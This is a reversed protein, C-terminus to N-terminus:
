ASRGCSCFVISTLRAFYTVMGALVIVAATSFDM